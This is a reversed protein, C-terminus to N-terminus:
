NSLDSPGTAYMRPDLPMEPYSFSYTHANATAPVLSSPPASSVLALQAVVQHNPPVTSMPSSMSSVSSRQSSSASSTIYTPTADIAQRANNAVAYELPSSRRLTCSPCNRVFRAILEKPVWSFYKRVQASTKDRGGHQAQGHSSTL